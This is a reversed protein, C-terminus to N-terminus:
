CAAQRVLISCFSAAMLCAAESASQCASCGAAAVSNGLEIPHEGHRHRGAPQGAQVLQLAQRQLALVLWSCRQGWISLEM